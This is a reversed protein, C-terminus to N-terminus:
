TKLKSQKFLSSSMKWVVIVSIIVMLGAPMFKGSNIFRYLFFLLMILANIGGLTIGVAQKKFSLIGLLISIGGISFGMILSPISDAKIFGIIGGISILIGYIILIYANRTM